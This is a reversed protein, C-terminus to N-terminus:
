DYKEIKTIVKNKLVISIHDDKEKDLPELTLEFTENKDSIPYIAALYFDTKWNSYKEIKNLGNDNIKNEIKPLYDNDWNEILQSIATLHNSFPSSTNGELIIYTEETNGKLLVTTQWSYNKTKNNGKIRESTLTGLIPHNFTKKTGFIYDIIKM